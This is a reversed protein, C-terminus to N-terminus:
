NGVTPPLGYLTLRGQAPGVRLRYSENDIAAHICRTHAYQPLAALLAHIEARKAELMRCGLIVSTVAQAPFSFLHIAESGTGIVHSADALPVIMRWEAEYEWEVGKM